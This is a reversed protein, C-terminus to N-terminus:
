TSCWAAGDACCPAVLRWGGRPTPGTRCRWCWRTPAPLSDLPTLTGRRVRAAGRRRRGASRAGAREVGYSRCSARHHRDGQSNRMDPVNEKFTLGLVTVRAGNVRRRAHILQKVCERAVFSGMGDNIRRGALIVQPHYGLRRPRTRDPLVPDVGICHGGVLGPRSAAPLEVQHRGGGAGRATDIGLRDFILALENM